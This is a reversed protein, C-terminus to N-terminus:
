LLSGIKEEVMKVLTEDNILSYIYEIDYHYFRDQDLEPVEKRIVDYVMRNIKSPKLPKLFDLGQVSMMIEIAAIYKLKKSIKYLKKGSLYALSVPEEQRACTTISQVSVPTSLNSIESYLGSITYQPIMYGNNLGPNKVLFSPYGSLESSVIRDMRKDVIKALMCAGLAASDCYISVFSGDFNGGMLATGDSYDENPYIIPNDSVSNIEDTIVDYADKIIKKAAGHIHPTCRLSYADQVTNGEYHDMIESEDLLKRLIEAANNQDKHQKMSHLRADLAKVNGKLAEFALSGSIDINKTANKMDYLAMSAYACVSMSGNIMSLGEKYTLKIPSLGKMELAIKSNIVKDDSWIRGEGIYALVFYAEVALYGVSGEGPAYPIIDANLMDRILNLTELRIGSYGKGTNVLHMMMLARAVEKEVPEGVAAAHSRVINTQLQEAEESSIVFEVNKGFGTTVGYIIRNEKVFKNVLNSSRTVRQNFEDSFIVKAKHRAVRVISDISVDGEGLVVPEENTQNALLRM